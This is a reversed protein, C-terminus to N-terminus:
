TGLIGRNELLYVLHEETAPIIRNGSNHRFDHLRPGRRSDAARLGTQRSLAYFARRVRGGDLRTGRNSVFVFDSRHPGLFEKRRGLYDALV